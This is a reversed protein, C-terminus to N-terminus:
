RRPRRAAPVVADLAANAETLAQLASATATSATQWDGREFASRAEQVRNEAATISTRPDALRAAPVRAGEASKLKAQTQELTTAASAIAREAQTRAATKKTEADRSANQARELSDLAHNLALRYDRANVADDARKLADEAATLEETAWRAADASRAAEIATRAQQIEKNPPEGGCAAVVVSLALLASRLVVRSSM